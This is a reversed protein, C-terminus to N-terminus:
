KREVVEFENIEWLWVCDKDPSYMKRGESDTILILKNVITEIYFKGCNISDIGPKVKVKQAKRIMADQADPICEYVGVIWRHDGIQMEPETHRSEETLVYVRMESM